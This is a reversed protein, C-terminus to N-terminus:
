NWNRTEHNLRGLVYCTFAKPSIYVFKLFRVLWSFESGSTRNLICPWSVFPLSHHGTALSIGIESM